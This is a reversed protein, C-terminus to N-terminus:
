LFIYRQQLSVYNLMGCLAGYSRSEDSGDGCDDKWNCIDLYVICKGNNCQFEYWACSSKGLHLLFNVPM